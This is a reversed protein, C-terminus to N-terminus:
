QAEEHIFLAMAADTLEDLSARKKADFWQASWNLAGFILLRALHVDAPLRGDAALSRLVPM